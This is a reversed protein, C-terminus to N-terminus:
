ATVTGLLSGSPMDIREGFPPRMTMSAEDTCNRSVLQGSLLLYGVAVGPDDARRECSGNRPRSSPVIPM